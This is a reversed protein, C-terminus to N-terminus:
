SKKRALRVRAEGRLVEIMNNAEIYAEYEAREADSLEDETALEALEALRGAAVSDCKVHALERTQEPTLLAFFPTMGRHFAQRFVHLDKM